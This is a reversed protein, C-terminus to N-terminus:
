QPAAFAEPALLRVTVWFIAAYLCGFGAGFVIPWPFDNLNPVYSFYLIFGAAAVAGVLAGWALAAGVGVLGKRRAWIAGAAGALLGPAASIAQVILVFGVSSESQLRSQRMSDGIGWMGVAVVGAACLGLVIHREHILTANERSVRWIAM